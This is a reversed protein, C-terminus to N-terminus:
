TSHWNFHGGRHGEDREEAVSSAAEGRLRAVAQDIAGAYRDHADLAALMADIRGVLDLMTDVDRPQDRASELSARLTTFDGTDHRATALEDAVAGTDVAVDPVTEDAPTTPVPASALAPLLTRLEDLLRTARPVVDDEGIGGPAPEFGTGTTTAAGSDYAAFPSYPSATEPAEAPAARQWAATPPSADAPTEGAPEGSEPHAEAAPVDRTALQEDTDPAAAYEGTWQTAWSSRTASDERDSGGSAAAADGARDDATTSATGVEDGSQEDAHAAHDTVPEPAPEPEGWSWSSAPAVAPEADRPAADEGVAREEEDSDASSTWSPETATAAPEITAQDPAGEPASEPEPATAPVTAESRNWDATNRAPLTPLRVGCSTCFKAGERNAAGCNACTEM